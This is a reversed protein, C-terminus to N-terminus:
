AASANSLSIYPPDGYLDAVIQRVCELCALIPLLRQSGARRGPSGRGMSM